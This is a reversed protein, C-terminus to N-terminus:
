RGLRLLNEKHKRHRTTPYKPECIQGANGAREPRTSHPREALNNRGFKKIFKDLVM